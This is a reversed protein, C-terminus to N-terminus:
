FGVILRKFETAESYQYKVYIIFTMEDLHIYNMKLINLNM